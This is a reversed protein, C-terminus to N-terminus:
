PTKPLDKTTLARRAMHYVRLVEVVEDEELVRFVIRHSFHSCDRLEEGIEESESMRSFRKPMNALSFIEKWAGALWRRARESSDKSVFDAYEALDAAASPM